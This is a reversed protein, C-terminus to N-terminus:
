KVPTAPLDTYRSKFTVWMDQNIANLKEFENQFMTSSLPMINSPTSAISIPVIDIPVGHKSHLQPMMNSLVKEISPDESDFSLLLAEFGQGSLAGVFDALLMIPEAGLSSALMLTGAESLQIKVNLKSIGLAAAAYAHGISDINTAVLQTGQAKAYQSNESQWYNWNEASNIKIRGHLTLPNPLSQYHESSIDKSLDISPSQIGAIGLISEFILDNTFVKNQNDRLIKWKDSHKKQWAQNAWVFLPINVMDYTFNASNHVRGDILEEAHDAVYVLISPNNRLELNQILQELVVDTYYITNVYCGMNRRSTKRITDIQGYISEPLALAFQKSGDPYRNCYNLHSNYLHLFTIQNPREAIAEEFLPILGEDYSSSSSGYGIKYNITKIRDAESAITTIHNSWGGLLRHNTLWHTEASAAKAYNFVSPSELWKKGNYQNASTLIYSMTPNSHSHNSYANKYLISEGATIRKQLRPTTDNVYGYSSMFKKNVSEGVVLVTTDNLHPPQRQADTSVNKRRDAIKEFAAIEWKYEIISKIILNTMASEHARNTATAIGILLLLGSYTLAHRKNAPQINIHRILLYFIFLSFILILTRKIGVFQQWFEIMQSDYSQMLGHLAEGSMPTSFVYSYAIFALPFICLLTFLSLALATAVRSKPLCSFAMFAGCAILSFATNLIIHNISIRGLSVDAGILLVNVLASLTAIYPSAGALLCLIFILAWLAWLSIQFHIRKHDEHFIVSARGCDANLNNHVIFEVKQGKAISFFVETSKNRVLGVRENASGGKIDVYAKDLDEAQCLWVPYEAQITASYNGADMFEIALGLERPAKQAFLFSDDIKKIAFDAIRVKTINQFRLEANQYVPKDTFSKNFNSSNFLGFMLVTALLASLIKHPTSTQFTLTLNPM